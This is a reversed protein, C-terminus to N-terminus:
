GNALIFGQTGLLIDNSAYLSAAHFTRPTSSYVGTASVTQSGIAGHDPATLGDNIVEIQSPTWASQGLVASPCRAM